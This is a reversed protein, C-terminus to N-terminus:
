FHYRKFNKSQHKMNKDRNNKSTLPLYFLDDLNSSFRFLCASHESGVFCEQYMAPDNPGGVLGVSICILHFKLQILSNLPHKSTHILHVRITFGFKYFYLIINGNQKCIYRYTRNCPVDFWLGNIDIALCNEEITKFNNEM